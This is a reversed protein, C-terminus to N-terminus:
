KNLNDQWPEEFHGSYYQKGRNQMLPDHLPAHRARWMHQPRRSQWRARSVHVVPLLVSFTIQTHCIAASVSAYVSASHSRRRWQMDGHQDLVWTEMHNEHCSHRWEETKVAHRWPQSQMETSYVTIGMDGHPEWSMFTVMGRDESCTGMSTGHRWPQSFYGHRWTTRM